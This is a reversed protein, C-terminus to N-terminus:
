KGSATTTAPHEEMALVHAVIRELTAIMAMREQEPVVELFSAVKRRHIPAIQEYLRRGEPTLTALIARRDDPRSTRKVYEAEELRDILGTINGSSVLLHQSIESLMMGEAEAGALVRLVAWQSGTLGFEAFTRRLESGIVVTARRLARWLRVADDPTMESATGKM